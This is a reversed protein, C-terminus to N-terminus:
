SPLTTGYADLLVMTADDQKDVNFVDSKLLGSVGTRQLEVLDNNVLKGRGMSAIHTGHPADIIAVAPGTKFVPTRLHIGYLPYSCTVAPADGPLKDFNNQALLESAAGDAAFTVVPLGLEDAMKLLTMNLELVKEADDKGNTPLLAVVQPPVQPRPIKILIARVQSALTKDQVAKAVSKDIDEPTEAICDDLPLVSGLVHGGYASSFTLRQRVKTCDGASCVPGAYGLRDALRKVRAVNEFILYPNQLADESNAVLM